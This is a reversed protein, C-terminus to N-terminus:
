HRRVIDNWRYRSLSPKALTWSIRAFFCEGLVFPHLGRARDEEVATRFFNGTLGTNDTVVAVDVDLARIRLGLIKAAKTGL